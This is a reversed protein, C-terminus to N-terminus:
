VNSARTLPLTSHQELLWRFDETALPMSYHYGQGVRCGLALLADRTREDEIGEPVVEAGLAHALSVVTTVIRHSYADDLMHRVFGQDVKIEDFPYRQLYLLSSYGTGFDDLSLRVGLEHISRLQQLLWDSEQEFVSETIELTLAAPDIDHADIADAVTAAFDGLTFQVVSVNVAVRVIELREAQWEQLLRCAERLAWDGIPAILQSQEAVPIFAAPSQLGREPHLWRILAEGSVMAGTSLDVKPQFHLQFEDNDLARRLERTVEIRHQSERDLAATYHTWRNAGAQARSRFLAVEAERLLSEVSRRDDGLETYGYRARIEVSGQDLPFPRSMAAVVADRLEAASAREDSPLFLAFEDGGTRGVVAREGLEASLRHGVESLLRDGAAFGHIDNVDRQGELDLVVLAAQAMWGHRALADDVARVMGNRSHLGTLPDEYALRSLRLEALKRETIDLHMVVVGPYGEVDSGIRNAMMRFWRPQDPSHCPYELSFREEGGDLVAALGDRVRRADDACDGTAADCIALYNTGVGVDPDANANEWGFHRWQENVDIISGGHDLLAIHAPLANILAQRSELLTALEDRSRRLDNEQERLQDLIRHRETVDQFYLALGEDTPYVRVDLWMGFPEYYEELATPCRTEMSRRFAEEFPTGLGEPFLEWANRGRMDAPDQGMLRGAEANVYQFTWDRDVTLFADTISELINTLRQNLRELERDAAKRASIDQFAGRAGTIRGADDRVPEGAVHVWLRQGQETLIEAERGVSEGQELAARLADRYEPAYREIADDIALTTGRPLGHIDAAVDSLTVRDSDFDISWAGFRAVRGAMELLRGRERLETEARTLETIDSMVAGVHRREGPLSDIPYYRMLVRRPGRVPDERVTEYRVWEGALARDYHPRVREEFEQEGVLERIPRGAVEAPDAGHMRGYADNVLTYRYDDDGIAFLEDSNEILARYDNLRVERRKSEDIDQFAGEIATIRGDDDAVPQGVARTWLRGGGATVLQVEEEYAEGREACATVAARLRERHEPAFFALGEEFSPSYGPARGHIEAVVDSWAIRQEDLDIRFGGLRAVRGAIEILRAQERLEDEARKFATIDTVSVGAWRRATEPGPIPFYHVLLHRRGLTPLEREAEFRVEEGAICRALPPWVDRELFGPDFLERLDMGESGHEEFGYTRAYAQTMMVYCGRDDIVCFLDQSAELLRRYQENRQEALRRETIDQITGTLAVIRGDSDREAAAREHVIRESGDSRTLRFEFDHEVDGALAPDRVALLHERDDPHVFALFAEPTPTFTEPAVGVIRYTEDSWDLQHTDADLRWSGIRAMRQSDALMRERYRLADHQERLRADAARREDAFENIARGLDGVEDRTRIDARAADNGARLREVTALLENVPRSIRRHLVGFAAVCALAFLLAAGAFTAAAVLAQNAIAGRRQQLASDLTSDLAIGQLSLHTLLIRSADGVGTGGTGLGSARADALTELLRDIRRAARDAATSEIGLRQLRGQLERADRRFAQWLGPEAELMWLGDSAANFQDIRGQLRLLEAMEQQLTRARQLQQVALGGLLLLGVLCGAMSIRSLRQLTM